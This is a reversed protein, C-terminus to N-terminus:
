KPFLARFYLFYQRSEDTEITIWKRVMCNSRLAKTSDDKMWMMRWAGLTKLTALSKMSIIGRKKKKFGSPNERGVTSQRVSRGRESRCGGEEPCVASDGALPRRFDAVVGVSRPLVPALMPPPEAVLAAPVPEASPLPWPAAAAAEPLGLLLESIAWIVLRGPNSGVFARITLCTELM